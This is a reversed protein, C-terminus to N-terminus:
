KLTMLFYWVAGSSSGGSKFAIIDLTKSCRDLQFDRDRVVYILIIIKTFRRTIVFAIRTGLAPTRFFSALFYKNVV